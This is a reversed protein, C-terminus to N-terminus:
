LFKKILEEQTSFMKKAQQNNKHEYGLLHLVGHAVMRLLEEKFSVEFEKAQRRVQPVSVFIDGLDDTETKIQKSDSLSFALVDTTKDQGRYLYNLSRMKQDGIFHISLDVGSNKTKTKDLIFKVLEKIVRKSIGVKSVKKYVVCSM